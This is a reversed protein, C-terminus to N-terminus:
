PHAQTPKLRKQIAEIAELIKQNWEDDQQGVIFVKFGHAIGNQAVSIDDDVHLDIRYQSPYKSPMIERKNSQVQEAHRYGNVVGDIKLGYCRFHHRIHRESRFSTTYIWLEIGQAQISQFLAITGYRLREKYIRNLPFPLARETKFQGPPVFITDDLDFSVRM